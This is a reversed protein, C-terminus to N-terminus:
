SSVTQLAGPRWARPWALAKDFFKVTGTQVREDKARFFPAVAVFSALYAVFYRSVVPVKPMEMGSKSEPLASYFSSLLLAEVDDLTTVRLENMCQWSSVRSLVYFFFENLLTQSAGKNSFLPKSGHDEQKISYEAQDKKFHFLNGSLVHETDPYIALYIAHLCEGLLLVFATQALEIIQGLVSKESSNTEFLVGDFKEGAHLLPLASLRQVSCPVARSM